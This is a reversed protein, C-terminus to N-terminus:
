GQGFEDRHLFELPVSVSKLFNKWAKKEGFVGYSLGCLKCGYTSPRFTKHFSDILSNIRGSDANWVFVITSDLESTGSM